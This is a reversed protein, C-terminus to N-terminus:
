DYVRRLSVLAQRNNDLPYGRYSWPTVVPRGREHAIKQTKISFISTCAKCLTCNCWNNLKEARVPYATSIVGAQQHGEIKLTRFVPLKGEGLLVNRKSM